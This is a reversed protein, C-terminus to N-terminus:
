SQGAFDLFIALLAVRTSARHPMKCDSCAVAGQDRSPVRQKDTLAASAESEVSYTRQKSISASHTQPSVVPSHPTESTHGM